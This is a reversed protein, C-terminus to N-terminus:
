PAPHRTDCRMAVADVPGGARRYYGPRVAVTTFGAATYLRRAAVNDLAVELMLEQVGRDRLAGVLYDLVARGCGRRQCSPATGITVLDASLGSNLALVYAAIDGLEADPVADSMQDSPICPTQDKRILVFGAFAPNAHFRALMAASTPHEFLAAELAAIAALHVPSLPLIDSLPPTDAKTRIAM